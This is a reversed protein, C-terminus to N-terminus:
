GARCQSCPPWQFIESSPPAFGCSRLTGRTTEPAPTWSRKTLLEQTSVVWIAGVM